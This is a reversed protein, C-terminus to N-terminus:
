QKGKNHSRKWEELKKIFEFKEPSAGCNMCKIGDRGKYAQAMFIEGHYNCVRCRYVQNKM